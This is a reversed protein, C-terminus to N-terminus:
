QILPNGASSSAKMLVLNGSAVIVVFFGVIGGTVIAFVLGVPSGSAGENSLPELIKQAGVYGMLM